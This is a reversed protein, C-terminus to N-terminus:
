NALNPLADIIDDWGDGDADPCGLRNGNSSNGIQGPCADPTIGGLNDGFGDGDMDSWQTVDDIHSDDQDAWGDSDTDTCGLTGNQWSDGAISPCDDALNGGANDGYGDGDTDNWQTPDTKFM